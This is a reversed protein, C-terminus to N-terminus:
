RCFAAPPIIECRATPALPPNLTGHRAHALHPPKDLNHPAHNSPPSGCWVGCVVCVGIVPQVRAPSPISGDIMGIKENQADLCCWSAFLMAVATGGSMCHTPLYQVYANVCVAERGQLRAVERERERERERACACTCSAYLSDSRGADEGGVYVSSRGLSGTLNGSTAQARAESLRAGSFERPRRRASMKKRQADLRVARM